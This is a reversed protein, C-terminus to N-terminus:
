GKEIFSKLKENDKSKSKKKEEKKNPEIDKKEEVKKEKKEKKEMKLDNTDNKLSIRRSKSRLSRNEEKKSFNQQIFITSPKLVFNFQPHYLPDLHDMFKKESSFGKQCLPCTLNWLQFSIGRLSHEKTALFITITQPSSKPDPIGSSFGFPSKVSYSLKFNLDKPGFNGINDGFLPLHDYEGDYIEVLKMDCIKLSLYSKSSPLIYYEM